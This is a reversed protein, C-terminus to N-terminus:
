YPMRGGYMIAFEGYVKDWNRINQTWKKTAQLTSLYLAKLLARDNPFITRQRNLRKYTSILSEIANTTYILTRVDKSFKFMPSLVDWNKEWSNMANPYKSCVQHLLVM